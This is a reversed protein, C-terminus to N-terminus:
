DRLCLKQNYRKQLVSIGVNQQQYWDGAEKVSAFWANKEALYKLTRIYLSWWEFKNINNIYHPHWLLTLVGGVTEVKESLQLIYKFATDSDLRMGKSHNLLAGDQILLPTEM